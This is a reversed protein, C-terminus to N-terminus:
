ASLDAERGFLASAITRVERQPLCRYLKNVDQAQLKHLVGPEKCRGGNFISQSAKKRGIEMAYPNPGM